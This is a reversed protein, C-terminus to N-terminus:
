RFASGPSPDRTPEAFAHQHPPDHCDTPLLRDIQVARYAQELLVFSGTVLVRGSAGAAARAASLALACDSGCDQHALDLAAAQEVLARSTMGRASYPSLDILYTCDVLPKMIGLMSRIDKDALAGFVWHTARKPQTALWDAVSQMAQPNHAVDFRLEPAQALCQLRGPAQAQAVGARLAQESYRWRTRLRYLLAVCAAANQLQIPAALTPWPLELRQEPLNLFWHEATCEAVLEAPLKAPLEASSEAAVALSYDRGSLWLPACVDDAHRAISPVPDADAYVVPVGPRMVGAKEYGIATRDPGLFAQHDLGISTIVSGDPAVINVADLRGGMGIELVAVDVQSRRLLDFAALTTHEFFTLTLEGRAHEVREFAAAWAAEPLSVGSIRLRESFHLLHPSTYCAVRHGAAALIAELFAVSSGKGNSGAVSLILPALRGEGMRSWVAQVRELGLQIPQSAHRAELIGLWTSFAQCEAM